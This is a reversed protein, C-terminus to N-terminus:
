AHQGGQTDEYLPLYRSELPQWVLWHEIPRMMQQRQEKNLVSDLARRVVPNYYRFLSKRGDTLRTFLLSGLHQSLVEFSKTSLLWSVLPEKRDRDVLWNQLDSREELQVLAPGGQKIADLETGDLLWQWRDSAQDLRKGLTLYRAGDVLAFLKLGPKDSLRIRLEDEISRFGNTMSM